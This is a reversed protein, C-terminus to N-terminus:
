KFLQSWITSNTNPISDMQLKRIINLYQITTVLYRITLSNKYRLILIFFVSFLKMYSCFSEKLWLNLKHFFYQHCHADTLKWYKNNLIQYEFLQTWITSNTNPIRDTKLFHLIRYETNVLNEFVFINPIQDLNVIQQM